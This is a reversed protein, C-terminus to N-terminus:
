WRNRKPKRTEIWTLTQELLDRDGTQWVEWLSQNRVPAPTTYDDGFYQGMRHHVDFHEPLRAKIEDPLPALGDRAAAYPHDNDGGRWLMELSEGIDCDVWWSEAEAYIELARERRVQDVARDIVQDSFQRRLRHRIAMFDSATLPRMATEREERLTALLLRHLREGPTGLRNV